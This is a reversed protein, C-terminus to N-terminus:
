PHLIKAISSAVSKLLWEPTSTAGTIGIKEKNQFWDTNLMEPGGVYHSDPNQGECISFLYKGNSSNKGGVFIVVDNKAAFERLNDDRNSVQACISNNPTFHLKGGPKLKVKHQEIKEIIQRYVEKNITTQAFLSIPREFDIKGVDEPSNVLIAKDDIQGNLGVVEPHNPKGYIVVQTHEPKGSEFARKVKKQLNLVVPCTADILTLNNERAIRYTEPPEGHARILVTVDKLSLFEQHGIVKLGMAKLRREEEENHVIQGLCFLSGSVALEEEAKRIARKVGSCLGAKQDISIHM